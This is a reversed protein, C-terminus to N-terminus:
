KKVMGSYKNKRYYIYLLGTIIIFGPLLFVFFLFSLREQVLSVYVDPYSIEKPRITLSRDQNLCWNIINLLLDKHGGEDILYNLAFESDGLFALRKERNTEQIQMVAAVTLPGKKDVSRDYEPQGKMELKKEAWATEYSRIVPHYIFNDPIEKIKSLTRTGVFFTRLNNKDIRNVIQHETYDLIPIFPNGRMNGVAPLFNKIDIVIDDHIDFGYKQMFTELGTELKKGTDISSDLLLLFSGGRDIYEKLGNLEARNFVKKPGLSIVLSANTPIKNILTLDHSFVQINEIQLTNRLKSLGTKADASSIDAEGHGLLFYVVQKKSEIFSLLTSVFKEEYRLQQRARGTEDKILRVFDRHTLKIIPRDKSIFIYTGDEKVNYRQTELPNKHSDVYTVKLYDSLNQYLRLIDYAPDDPNKPSFIKVEVPFDLRKVVDISSPSLSFIRNHSFDKRVLFIDFYFCIYLGLLIFFVLLINFSDELKKKGKRTFFQSKISSFNLGILGSLTIFFGLLLFWTVWSLNELSSSYFYTLPIFVLFVLNSIILIQNLEKNKM